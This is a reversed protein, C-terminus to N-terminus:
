STGRGSTSHCNPASLPSSLNLHLGTDVKHERSLEAFREWDEMFVMASASKITGRTVCDLMRDTNVRDAARIEDANIILVGSYSRAGPKPVSDHLNAKM